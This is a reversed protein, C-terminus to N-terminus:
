RLSPSGPVRSTPARTAHGGAPKTEPLLVGHSKAWGDELVSFTKRAEADHTGQFIVRTAHVNVLEHKEEPQCLLPLNRRKGNPCGQLAVLTIGVVKLLLISDIQAHSPVNTM